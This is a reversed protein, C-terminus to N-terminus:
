DFIGLREQSFKSKMPKVIKASAAMRSERGSQTKVKQLGTTQENQM